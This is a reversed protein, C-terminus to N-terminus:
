DMHAPDWTILPEQHLTREGIVCFGKIIWKIERQWYKHTNIDELDVQVVTALKTKDMTTRNHELHIENNSQMIQGQSSVM